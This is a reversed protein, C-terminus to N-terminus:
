SAARSAADPAHSSCPQPGAIHEINESQISLDMAASRYVQRINERVRLYLVFQSTDLTAKEIAPYDVLISRNVNVVGGGIRAYM